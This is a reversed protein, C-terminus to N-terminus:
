AHRRLKRDRGIRLSDAKIVGTVALGALTAAGMLAATTQLPHFKMNRRFRQKVDRAVRTPSLRHELATVTEVLAARSRAANREARQLPTLSRDPDKPQVAASAAYSREPSRFQPRHETAAADVRTTDEVPGRGRSTAYARTFEAGLLFTQASYYVWFLLVILGGAAGYSSAVASSGLYWGTMSKGITFLIATVVAGVVVDRWAIPRDPLLKYMAAFLVALLVLSVLFNIASLIAKGFPLMADLYAGFATLGASIALSVVLLFALAAVLGLSAARARILRSVTGSKPKAKWMRNLATQMEGFVGSATAILTAIGIATALVGSSKTAASAVATQLVEAAQGGMLGRLQGLIAGQAAEQGFVLGAIAIVLLLVPALSTVTYFAIAAGRSLAEDEIFGSVTDKLLRWM